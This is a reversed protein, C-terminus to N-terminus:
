AFRHEKAPKVKEKRSLCADTIINEACVSWFYM